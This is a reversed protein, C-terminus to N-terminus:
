ETDDNETITYLDEQKVWKKWTGTSNDKPTIEVKIDLHGRPATRRAVGPGSHKTAERGTLKVETDDYIYNTM